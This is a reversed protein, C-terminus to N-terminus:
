LLTHGDMQRDMPGDTPRDTPGDCVLQIESFHALISCFLMLIGNSLRDLSLYAPLEALVCRNDSGQEVQKKRLVVEAPSKATNM